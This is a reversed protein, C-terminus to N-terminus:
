NGGAFKLDQVRKEGDKLILTMAGAALQSLLVEDLDQQDIEHVAVVHYSGPRLGGVRFAGDTATRAMSPRRNARSTWYQKNTSFVVVHYGSAPGGNTDVLRGSLEAWRDTLTVVVDPLNEGPNIRVPLDTVDRGGIMVSGISWDSSGGRQIVYYEGPAASVRFTRDANITAPVLRLLGEQRLSLSMSTVDAPPTATGDFQIRGSVILSPELTLVVDLFDEGNVIFERAAWM